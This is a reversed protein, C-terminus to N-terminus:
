LLNMGRLLKRLNNIKTPFFLLCDSDKEKKKFVLMGDQEVLLLQISELYAEPVDFHSKVDFNKALFDIFRKSSSPPNERNLLELKIEKDSLYVYDGALLYAENITPVRGEYKSALNFEVVTAM